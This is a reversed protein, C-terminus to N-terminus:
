NQHPRVLSPFFPPAVLTSSMRNSVFQEQSRDASYVYLRACSVVSTNIRRVLQDPRMRRLDDFIHARSVSTFLATPSIPLAFLIRERDIERYLPWDSTLLRLGSGSLDLVNWLMANLRAGAVENDLAAQILRIRIRDALNNGQALVWQEFQLPDEPRRLREYEQQTIDDALLWRDHAVARVEAFPHPHRVLFNITFRSWASRLEPTWPEADGSLLKALALSALSDTRQLFISELYQALAPPCDGFAYLDRQFGTARPGVPKAVFKNNHPRSYEILKGDANTWQKLYFVPIFHHDRPQSMRVM